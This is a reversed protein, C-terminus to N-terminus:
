VPFGKSTRLREIQLRHRDMHLNIMEIWQREDLPGAVFHPFVVERDVEQLAMGLRELMTQCSSLAGIWFQLTGGVNPEGGPPVKFRGNLYEAAAVETPLGRNVHEGEWMPKNVKLGEIGTWLASYVFFETEYLHEVIEPASWAGSDPKFAAQEANWGNVTAIVRERAHRVVDILESIQKM